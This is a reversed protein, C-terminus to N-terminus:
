LLGEDLGVQGAEKAAAAADSAAEAEAIRKELAGV